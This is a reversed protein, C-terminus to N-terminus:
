TSAEQRISLLAEKAIRHAEGAQWASSGRDPGLALQEIEELARTLRKIEAGLPNTALNVLDVLARALEPQTM